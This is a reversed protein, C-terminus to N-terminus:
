QSDCVALYSRERSKDRAGQKFFLLLLGKTIEEGLPSSKLRFISLIKGNELCTIKIEKFNLRMMENWTFLSWTFHANGDQIRQKCWKNFYCNHKVMYIKKSIYLFVLFM